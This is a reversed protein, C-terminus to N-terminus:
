LNNTFENGLSEMDIDCIMNYKDIKVSKVKFLTFPLFLREKENPFKTTKTNEINFCYPRGGHFNYEIRFIVGFDGKTNRIISEMDYSRLEYDPSITKEYRGSFKKAVSLDTSTSNFQPICITQGEFRQYNILEIIDLKMGKHLTAVNVNYGLDISYSSNELCYIVNGM